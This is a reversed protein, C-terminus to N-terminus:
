GGGAVGYAVPEDLSLVELNGWNFDFNYKTKEIIMLKAQNENEAIAFALGETYDSMFDTWVFLKLKVKKMKIFRKFKNKKAFQKLFQPNICNCDCEEELIAMKKVWKKSPAKIFM